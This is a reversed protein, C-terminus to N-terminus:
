FRLLDDVACGLADAIKILQTIKPLREGNCYKSVAAESIKARTAVDKQTLGHKVIMSKLKVAFMARLKKDTM